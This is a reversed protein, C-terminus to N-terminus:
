SYIKVYQSFLAMLQDKTVNEPLNQLFLIKNPELYEDPMQVNPRKTPAAPAPAAGEATFMRTLAKDPLPSRWESKEAVRRARAKLKHPNNWRTKGSLAEDSALVARHPLLRM